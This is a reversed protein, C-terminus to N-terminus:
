FAVKNRVSLSSCSDTRFDELPIDKDVSSHNSRDVVEEATRLFDLTGLSRRLLDEWHKRVAELALLIREWYSDISQRISLFSVRKLNRREEVRPVTDSATRHRMPQITDWSTSVLWNYRVHSRAFNASLRVCPSLRTKEGKM